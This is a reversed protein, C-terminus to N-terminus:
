STVNVGEAVPEPLATSVTLSLTYAVSLETATVPMPLHCTRSPPVWTRVGSKPASRPVSSGELALLVTAWPFFLDKSLLNRPRAFVKTCYEEAELTTSLQRGNRTSYWGPFEVPGRCNSFRSACRKRDAPIRTCQPSPGLIFFQRASATAKPLNFWM